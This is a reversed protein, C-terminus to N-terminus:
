ELEFNLPILAWGAMPQGNETYPKFRAKKVASVAAEDLRPFGSTKSVQVVRPMGKEDVYVRTIVRGAERFPRSARPYEMVPPVLYQIASAPIMKPAPAPAPPAPPSEVQALESTEPVVEPEPPASVFDTPTTVPTPAAILPTPPIVKPIPKPQPPPPQPPEPKPEAIVEFMMPAAAVVVERVAQIQMLGWGGVLHFLVIAAWVSWLQGPTLGQRRPLPRTLLNAPLAQSMQIM